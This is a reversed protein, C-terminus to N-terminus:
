NLSTLLLTRITKRRKKKKKKKEDVVAVIWSVEGSTEKRLDRFVTFLVLSILCCPSELLILELLLVLLLVLVSVLLERVVSDPSSPFLSSFFILRTFGAAGSEISDSISVGLYNEDGRNGM